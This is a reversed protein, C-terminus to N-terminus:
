MASIHLDWKLTETVYVELLKYSKVNKIVNGELMLEQRPQKRTGGGLRMEKTKKVNINMLRTM